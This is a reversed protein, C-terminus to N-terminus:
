CVVSFILTAEGLQVTPPIARLQELGLWLGAQNITGLRVHAEEILGATEVGVAGVFGVTSWLGKM